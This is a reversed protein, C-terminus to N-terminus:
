SKRAFLWWEGVLLVLAALLVPKWWDAIRLPSAVATAQSGGVSAVAQPRIESEREDRLTAFVPLTKGGQALEYRGARIAERVVLFGRNSKLAIRSGDPRLLTADANGPRSFPVGARIALVDGPGDTGVLFDLANAIFIPFGVQLPFDSQLPEFALFLSRTGGSERVALLPGQDTEILARAGPALKTRVFRDIFVASFDVGATVPNREASEVNPRSGESVRVAASGEGPSGLNLVGRVGTPIEEIGDFVVVDYREQADAPPSESRDLTLRPDLGLARELFPNGSSVLLVRIAAGPDALATAYNDAALDDDARLRAEIVKAGPPTPRADGTRTGPKVALTRSDFPSGDAFLTLTGSLEESGHNRVAVFVEQGSRGEGVSLAAVSLNNGREGVQRYVLEAKGPSFDAVPGFAGDSVLVIRAGDISGVLASGLRLAEGVDSVADTQEVRELGELLRRSDRSLPSVVRPLPAAEILAIQDGPRATRIAEGVIRRAVELRSPKVDTAGMSASVDVVFVTASGTLGQTQGQPRALAVIIAALALLQVVLLWSFKLRQFLSNARIEETQAPWLFTAPVRLDKRRM